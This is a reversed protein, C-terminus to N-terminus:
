CTAGAATQAGSSSRTSAMRGSSARTRRQWRRPPPAIAASPTLPSQTPSRRADPRTSPLESIPPSGRSRPPCIPSCTPTTFSSSTRSIASPGGARPTTSTARIRGARAKGPSGGVGIWLPWLAHIDAPCRPMPTMGSAGMGGLYADTMSSYHNWFSMFVDRPDRVVVIYRVEPHFPLADIPLHSKIFRRHEQGELMAMVAGGDSRRDLWPSVASVKPRPELPFLLHRLINQMWTTGSKYSTSVVIDGPRPRYLRWNRSDFIYSVYERTLEPLRM